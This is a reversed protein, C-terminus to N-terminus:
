TKRQQRQRQQRATRRVATDRVLQRGEVLGLLVASSLEDKQVNKARAVSLREGVGM